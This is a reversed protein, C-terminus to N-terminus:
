FAFQSRLSLAEFTEGISVGQQTNGGLRDIDVWQYDLLFRVVSNPYWNLGLTTITQVGGRVRAAAVASREEDDLDLVSHRGAIEFAGWEKKEPNFAKTPRVGRFGGNASAWAHTEGTITWAGQVYWGGFVPDPLSPSVRNVEIQFVEGALYFNKWSAGLEAGYAILDEAAINGTDVLRGGDVRLEPRERLRISKSVVGGAGTDAPDFVGTVNAGLHVTLNQTKLPAFAFRALYGTQEDFETPNATGVLAGTLVGSAYWREGTLFAGAGTRGDGGAISRVLEAPAARELFLSETNSTADELGAPTAWAGIRLRLASASEFPKWGAYEVYAQTIGASEGGSGGFETILAYNWSKLFSGEVGLRARRFNTGSGLETASNESQDYHAADFQILARVALSAAGDSRAIVPRGNELKITTEEAKARVDKLQNSTAAKLDQVQVSLAEIQAELAKIKEDQTAADQAAAPAGASFLLAGVAAGGALMWSTARAGSRARPHNTAM